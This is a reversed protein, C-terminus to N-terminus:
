PRYCPMVRHTDGLNVPETFRTALDQVHTQRLGDPNRSDELSGGTRRRGRDAM